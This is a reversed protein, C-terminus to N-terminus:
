RPVGGLTLIDQILKILKEKWKREKNEKLIISYV